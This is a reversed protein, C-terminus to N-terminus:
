RQARYILRRKTRRLLEPWPGAQPVLEYWHRALVTGVCADDNVTIEGAGAQAISQSVRTFLPELM